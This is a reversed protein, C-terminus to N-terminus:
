AGSPVSHHQILPMPFAPGATACSGDASPLTSVKSAASYTCVPKRVTGSETFDVAETDRETRQGGYSKMITAGERSAVRDHWDGLPIGPETSQTRMSVVTGGALRWKEIPTRSLGVYGPLDDLKTHENHLGGVKRDSLVRTDVSTIYRIFSSM